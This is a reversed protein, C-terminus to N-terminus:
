LSKFESDVAWPHLLSSFKTNLLISTDKQFETCSNTIGGIHMLEIWKTKDDLPRTTLIFKMGRRPLKVQQTDM